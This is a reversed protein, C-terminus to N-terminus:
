TWPTKGVCLLLVWLDWYTIVAPFCTFTPSLIGFEVDVDMLFSYYHSQSKALFCVSVPRPSWHQLSSSPLQSSGSCPVSVIVNTPWKM